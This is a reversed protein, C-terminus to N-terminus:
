QLLEADNLGDLRSELLAARKLHSAMFGGTNAMTRDRLILVCRRVFDDDRLTRWAHQLQTDLNSSKKTRLTEITLLELGFHEISLGRRVRWLKMLRIAPVVVGGKM